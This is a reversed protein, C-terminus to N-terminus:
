FFEVVLPGRQLKTSSVPTLSHAEGLSDLTEQIVPFSFIGIKYKSATEKLKDFKEECDNNRCVNPEIKSKFWQRTEIIENELSELYNKPHYNRSLNHIKSELEKHKLSYIHKGPCVLGIKEESPLSIGHRGGRPARYKYKYQNSKCHCYKCKQIIDRIHFFADIDQGDVRLYDRGFFDEFNNKM